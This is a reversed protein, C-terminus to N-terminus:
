FIIRFISMKPVCIHRHPKPQPQPRLPLEAPSVLSLAVVVRQGGTVAHGRHLVRFFGTYELLLFCKESKILSRYM